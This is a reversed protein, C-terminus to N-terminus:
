VRWDRVIDTLHQLSYLFVSRHTLLAETKKPLLNNFDSLSLNLGMWEGVTIMVQTAVRESINSTTTFYHIGFLGLLAEM